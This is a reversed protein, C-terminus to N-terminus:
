NQEKEGDREDQLRAGELLLFSTSSGIEDEGDVEGTRFEFRGRKWNLMEYVALPGRRASGDIDARIVRGERLTIRGSSTEATLNVVGSKRELELVILVSSLGFEELSGTLVAYRTGEAPTIPIRSGPIHVPTRSSVRSHPMQVVGGLAKNVAAEIQDLRFPKTVVQDSRPRFGPGPPDSPRGGSLFIFAVDESDPRGRLTQALAWGDSTPLKLETLVVDPRAHGARILAEWGDSALDVLHGSQSLVASVMRQTWPDDDVVLVRAMPTKPQTRAPSDWGSM